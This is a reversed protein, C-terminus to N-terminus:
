DDDRDARKKAKAGAKEAPTKATPDVSPGAKLEPKGASTLALEAAKYIEFHSPPRKHDFALGKIVPVVRAVPHGLEILQQIVDLAVPPMWGPPAEIVVEVVTEPAPAASQEVPNGYLGIIDAVEEPAVHRLGLLMERGAGRKANLFDSLYAGSVGIREALRKQGGRSNFDQNENLIKKALARLADTAPDTNAM